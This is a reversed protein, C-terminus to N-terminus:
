IEEVVLKQDPESDSDRFLGDLRDVSDNASSVKDIQTMNHSKKDNFLKLLCM